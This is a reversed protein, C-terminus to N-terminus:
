QTPAFYASHEGRRGLFGFGCMSLGASNLAGGESIPPRTAPLCRSHNVQCFFLAERQEGIGIPNLAFVCQGPPDIDEDVRGNMTARHFGQMGNLIQGRDLLSDVVNGSAPDQRDFLRAGAHRIGQRLQM